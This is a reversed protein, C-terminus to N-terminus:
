GSVHRDRKNCFKDKMYWFYIHGNESKITEMDIYINSQDTKGLSEWKIPKSCGKYKKRICEEVYPISKKLAFIEYPVKSIKSLSDKASNNGNRSSIELWMLGIVKDKKVGQGEFYMAGLNFQADNDGREAALRYWKVAEAYDLGFEYVFDNGVSGMTQFQLGLAVRATFLMFLIRWRLSETEETLGIPLPGLARLEQLEAESM